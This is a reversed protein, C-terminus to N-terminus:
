PRTDLRSNCRRSPVFFASLGRVGPRPRRVWFGAPAGAITKQAAEADGFMAGAKVVADGIRSPHDFQDALALVVIFGEAAGALL